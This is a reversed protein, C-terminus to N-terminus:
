PFVSCDGSMGSPAQLLFSFPPTSPKRTKPKSGPLYYKDPVDSFFRETRIRMRQAGEIEDLRWNNPYFDPFHWIGREHTAREIVHQWLQRARVKESLTDRINVMFKKREEDQAKMAIKTVEVAKSTVQSPLITKWFTLTSFTQILAVMSRKLHLVQFCM